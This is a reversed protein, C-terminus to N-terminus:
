AADGVVQAPVRDAVVDRVHDVPVDVEGVDAVDAAPEAREGLALAVGVRVPQRELLDGVAGLLGPVGAGASTQMCPPM